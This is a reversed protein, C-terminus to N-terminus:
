RAFFRKEEEAEDEEAHIIVVLKDSAEVCSLVRRRKQLRGGEGSTM